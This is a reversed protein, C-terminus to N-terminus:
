LMEDLADIEKLEHYGILSPHKFKCHSQNEIEVHDKFFVCLFVLLISLDQPSLNNVNSFTELSKNYCEIPDFKQKELKAWYIFLDLINEHNYLAFFVPIVSIYTKLKTWDKSRYIHFAIDCIRNPSSSGLSNGIEAHLIQTKPFFKEIVIHKLASNPLHFRNGHKFIIFDFFQLYNELNLPREILLALENKSLGSSSVALYAFMKYIEDPQESNNAFFELAYEFLSNVTLFSQLSSILIKPLCTEKYLINYLFKVYLANQSIGYKKIDKAINDASDSFYQSFYLTIAFKNM